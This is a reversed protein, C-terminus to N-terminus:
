ALRWPICRARRRRSEPEDLRARLREPVWGGESTDGSWLLGPGAPRVDLRSRRIHGAYGAGFWCWTPPTPPLGLWRGLPALYREPDSEVSASVYIASVGVAVDLAFARVAPDDPPRETHLVHAAVRGPSPAALVADSVSPGGALLLLDPTTAYASRLAEEGGVAVRGCLPETTGYTRPVADPLYERAAGLWEGVVDCRRDGRVYWRVLTGTM